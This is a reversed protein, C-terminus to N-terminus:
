QLINNGITMSTKPGQISFHQWNQNIVKNKEVKPSFFDGCPM